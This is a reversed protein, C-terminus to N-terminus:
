ELLSLASQVYTPALMAEGQSAVVKDLRWIIHPFVPRRMAIQGQQRVTEARAALRVAEAAEGM